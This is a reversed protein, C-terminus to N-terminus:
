RAGRLRPDLVDRLADGILNIALVTVFIALGPYMALHPAIRILPLAQSLMGGWTATPPPVGLGLFSLGAEALIAYGVGLSGQVILPALSNPLLHVRLVRFTPAGVSRAALVYVEERVSLVQGRTLRTYVPVSNAGIAIMLQFIGTGFLGIIALALILSPFAIIADMIRMIAADWLGGFYGAILGLPVGVVMAFGVAIIGVQISVRSGYILRTLVDRGLRDTGLLHERSPGQLANVADTENVGYPTIMPAAVATLVLVAIVAFAVPVLRQQFLRRLTGPPRIMGADVAAWAAASGSASM